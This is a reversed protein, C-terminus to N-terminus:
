SVAAIKWKGDEKVLSVTAPRNKGEYISQVTATATRTIAHAHTGSAVPGLSVHEVASELNDIEQIQGKITQTCGGPSSKLRAVVSAALDNECVKKEDAASVDSQLNAITQAVEREEGRFSSTSVSSACGGACLALTTVGILTTATNARATV